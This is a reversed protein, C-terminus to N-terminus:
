QVELNRFIRLSYINQKIVSRWMDLAFRKSRIGNFQPTTRPSNLLYFISEKAIALPPAHFSAVDNRSQHHTNEAGEGQAALAGM